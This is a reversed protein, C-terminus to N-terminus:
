VDCYSFINENKCRMLICTGMEVLKGGLEELADDDATVGGRQACEELQGAGAADLLDSARVVQVAHRGEALGKVVPVPREPPAERRM